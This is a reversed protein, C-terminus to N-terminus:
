TSVCQSLAQGVQIERETVPEGDVYTGGTSDLDKVMMTGNAYRLECHHSTVALEDIQLDNDPTRGIRTTGPKLAHTHVVGDFTTYRLEPM